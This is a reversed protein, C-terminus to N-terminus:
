PDVNIIVSATRGEGEVTVSFRYSGPADVQITASTRGNVLSRELESEGGVFSGPSVSLNVILGDPAPGDNELSRVRVNVGILIPYETIPDPVPAADIEVIWDLTVRPVGCCRCGGRDCGIVPALTTLAAVLMMSTLLLPLLPPLPRRRV